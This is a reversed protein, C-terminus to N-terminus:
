PRAIDAKPASPDPQTGAPHDPGLYTSLYAAIKDLDDDSAVMGKSTMNDIIQNWRELNHKQKAFIDTGHCTSCVKQTLEKGDGDPLPISSTKTSIGGSQGSPPQRMLVAVMSLPPAVLRKDSSPERNERASAISSALLLVTLCTVGRSAIRPLHM